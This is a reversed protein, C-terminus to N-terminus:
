SVDVMPSIEPDTGSSESDIDPAVSSQHAHLRQISGYDLLGICPHGSQSPHLNSVGGRTTMTGNTFDLKVGWAAMEDPGILWPVAADVEAIELTEMKGNVGVPYIWRRISPIPEGPGFQFLETINKSRYSIGLNDLEEQLEQHWESGGVARRCGTDAMVMGRQLRVEYVANVKEGNTM